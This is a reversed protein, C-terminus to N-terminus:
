QKIFTQATVQKANEIVQFQYTGKALNNLQINTLGKNLRKMFVLRVNVDFVNAIQGKTSNAIVATEVVPNPFLKISSESVL